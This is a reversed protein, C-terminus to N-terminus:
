KYILFLGFGLKLISLIRLSNETFPLVFPDYAYSLSNLRVVLINWIQSISVNRDLLHSSKLICLFGVFYNSFSLGIKVKFFSCFVEVPVECFGARMSFDESFTFSFRKFLQWWVAAHVALIPLAGLM